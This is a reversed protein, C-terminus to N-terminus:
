ALAVVEAAAWVSEYAPIKLGATDDSRIIEAPSRSALDKLSQTLTWAVRGDIFIARDHLSRPAALRVALPRASAHQKVWRVAATVLTGKHDKKDAMLRLPVGAAMVGAFETLVTEDLYPDVILVDQTATKLVKAVAALADFAGGVPIFAGRVHAPAHAEAVAFARYLMAKIQHAANFRDTTGLGNIAVTVLPADALVGVDQILRFARGVWLHTEPPIPAATLDPMSEILRGMERYLTEPDGNM